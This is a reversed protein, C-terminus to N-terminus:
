SRTPQANIPAEETKKEGPARDKAYKFLVRPNPVPFFKCAKAYNRAQTYQTIIQDAHESALSYKQKLIQQLEAPECHDLQLTITRNAAAKSTAERFHYTIPNQSGLLMFGPKTASKGHLDVGSLLANLLLEDPFTNLEEIIAVKGEHFAALLQERMIQPKGVDIVTYSIDCGHLFAKILQSKGLGAEGELILANIGVAQDIHGNIKLSRMALLLQMSMTIKQRSATWIFDTGKQLSPSLLTKIIELYNQSSAQQELINHLNNTLTEDKALRKMEQLIVYQILFSEPIHSTLGQQKLAFAALCIMQANRPTMNLGAEIAKQYYAEIIPLLQDAPTKFQMLLPQLILGLPQGKFEFYHPFRRFLDAELRNVYRKPNGAFIIKKDPPIEYCQGNRWLVREGRALNDFLAFNEATLNVEDFFLYAEGVANLWAPISEMDHHISITRGEQKASQPLVKQVFYSKGEGTESLLFVFDNDHLYNVVDRVETAQEPYLLLGAALKLQQCLINYWHAHQDRNQPLNIFHSHCPTIKLTAYLQRLDSQLPEQLQQFDIDPNYIIKQAEIATFASANDTIVTISGTIAISEGNVYLSPKKTFLSQLKQAFDESFQGKLVIAHGERIAKLLDTDKSMFGQEDHRHMYCFLSEFRTNPSIPITYADKHCQAQAYEMDNTVILAMLGQPVLLMEQITWPQLAHPILVNSTCQIAIRCQKDYATQWLKFWQADSLSETVKLILGSQSALFGPRSEIGSAHGVCYHRFFQTYTRHNLIYEQVDDTTIKRVPPYQYNSQVFVIPLTEPLRYREGNAYFNRHRLLESMAWRFESNNWPANHIKLETSPNDIAHILAGPIFITQKGDIHHYGFLIKKWDAATSILVDRPAIISVGGETVQQQSLNHLSPAQMIADMRSYFDEGMKAASAADMVVVIRLNEPLVIENLHRDVDDIISNLGVHEFKPNSWNIFWTFKKEPEQQAQHLFTALPADVRQYTGQIVKLGTLRLADLHPTFFYDGAHTLVADHLAEIAPAGDPMIILRRSLDSGEYDLLEAALGDINTAKLPRNDWTHFPNNQLSQLPQPLPQQRAGTLLSQHQQLLEETSSNPETSDDKPLTACSDTNKASDLSYEVPNSSTDVRSLSTDSLVHHSDRSLDSPLSPMPDQLMRSGSRGGLNITHYQRNDDLATVFFHIDNAVCSAEIGLGSALATFLMARHRCVGARLQILQNFLQMGTDSINAASEQPFHCFETLASILQNKSYKKLETCAQNQILQGFSNFELGKLLDQLSSLAPTKIIEPPPAVKVIYSVECFKEPYETKLYHYGPEGNQRIEQKIECNDISADYVLLTDQLSLAPLQYWTNPKLGVLVVQGYFHNISRLDTNKTFDDLVEILSEARFAQTNVLRKPVHVQFSFSVDNWCYSTLHYTSPIPHRHNNAKFLIRAGLVDNPDNILNGDLGLKDKRPRLLNLNPCNYSKINICHPAASLIANLQQFTISSGSVDLKKLRALQGPRLELPATGLAECHSMDIKILYPAASLIASLQQFTISSVKVDLETLLLLQGLKLELPPKRLAECYSMNIKILHPAARLITSLQQFTISTNSVDLETLQAFQRLELELPAKGLKSWGSMSIKRLHPAVSLIASLQQFTIDLYHVDLETLQSLQGLELELLTKVCDDCHTLSIKVLHVAVRLIANFQQSTISSRSVDLETLQSLQGSGLELSATGLERSASMNIKRLHPAVRLFANLQQFTISSSSVNLETLGSFQMLELELPAKGFDDCDSLDLRMLNPMPIFCDVLEQKNRLSGAYVQRRLKDTLAIKNKEKSIHYHLKDSPEILAEIQQMQKITLEAPLKPYRTNEVIFNKIHTDYLAPYKTSLLNALDVLRELNLVDTQEASFQQQAALELATAKTIPTFYAFQAVLQTKDALKVLGNVGSIYLTFGQDILDGFFQFWEARSRTDLYQFYWSSLILTKKDTIKSTCLTRWCREKGDLFADVDLEGASPDDSLQSVIYTREFLLGLDAFNIELDNPHM